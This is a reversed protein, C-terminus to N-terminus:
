IQDSIVEFTLDDSRNDTEDTEQVQEVKDVESYLTFFGATSPTWSVSAERIDADSAYVPVSGYNVLSFRPVGGSTVSAAGNSLDENNSARRVWFRRSSNVSGVEQFRYTKGAKLNIKATRKGNLLKAILRGNEFVHLESLVISAPESVSPEGDSPPPSSGDDIIIIDGDNGGVPTTGVVVPNPQTQPPPSSSPNPPTFINEIAGGVSGFNDSLWGFYLVEEEEESFNGTGQVSPVLIKNFSLDTSPVFTFDLKSGGSGPSYIGSSPMEVITSLVGVPIEFHSQLASVGQHFLQLDATTIVPSDGTNKVRAVFDIARNKIPALTNYGTISIDEFTLNPKPLEVISVQTTTANNSNESDFPVVNDADVFVFLSSNEISDLTEPVLFSVCKTDSTGAALTGFDESFALTGSIVILAGGLRFASVDRLEPNEVDIGAFYEQGAHITTVPTGTCDLTEYVAVSNVAVDSPTLKITLTGTTSDNNTNENLWSTSPAYKADNDPRLVKVINATFTETIEPTNLNVYSSLNSLNVSFNKTKTDGPEVTNSILKGYNNGLGTLEIEARAPMSGINEITVTATVNGNFTDLVPDTSFTLQTLRLDPKFNNQARVVLSDKGLTTSRATVTIDTYISFNAPM